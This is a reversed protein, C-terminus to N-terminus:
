GIGVSTLRVDEPEFVVVWLLAAVAARVARHRAGATTSSPSVRMLKGTVAPGLSIM